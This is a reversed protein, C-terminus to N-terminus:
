ASSRDGVRARADAILEASHFDRDSLIGATLDSVYRNGILPVGPHGISSFGIQNSSGFLCVTAVEGINGM